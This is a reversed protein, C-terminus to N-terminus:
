NKAKLYGSMEAQTVRIGDLADVAKTLLAIQREGQDQLTTLCNTRQVALESAIKDLKEQNETWIRKAKKVPWM